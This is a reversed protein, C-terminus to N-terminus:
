RLPFSSSITSRGTVYGPPMPSIYLLGAVSLKLNCVLCDLDSSTYTVPLIFVYRPNGKENMTYSEPNFEGTTTRQFCLDHKKKGATSCGPCSQSIQPWFRGGSMPGNEITNVWNIFLMYPKYLWGENEATEQQESEQSSSTWQSSSLTNEKEQAAKITAYVLGGWM